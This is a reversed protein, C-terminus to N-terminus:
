TLHPIPVERRFAFLLYSFGVPPFRVGSGCIQLRSHQWSVLAAKTIAIAFIKSGLRGRKCQFYFQLVRLRHSEFGHGRFIVGVQGRMTSARAGSNVGQAKSAVRAGAHARSPQNVASTPPRPSASIPTPNRRSKSNRDRPVRPM